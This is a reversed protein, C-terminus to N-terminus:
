GRRTGSSTPSTAARASATPRSACTRPRRCRSCASACPTPATSTSRRRAPRHRHRAVQVHPPRRAGPDRLPDLRRHVAGRGHVRPGADGDARGVPLHHRAGHVARRDPLVRAATPRSPGASRRSRGCARPSGPTSCTPTARWGGCEPPESRGRSRETAACYWVPIQHGWWLQRSVCWPRINELWNLYVQRHPREPHFRLPRRARGRDGPRCAGGHRLVVAALDAARHPPRASRTRCTTRTRSRARSRLGGACRRSSRAAADDVALGAFREGATETMRGDEGIVVLSSSTSAASRSTTRTTARAHDQARRHRVRPRRVRRRHDAAHPRGAAPDRTEGILRTYREDGPNVAIAIDALMTEPRVTAVTISGSGSELPYDVM